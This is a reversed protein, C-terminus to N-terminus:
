NKDSNNQLYFYSILSNMSDEYYTRFKNAFSSCANKNFSLVKTVIGSSNPLPTEDKYSYLYDTLGAKKLILYTKSSEKKYTYNKKWFSKDYTGYEDFSFFPVTNHLAVVIPHMREGIYGTANKILVYWELPNLPLPIKYKMGFDFCGEPMPFAVAQIGRKSIEEEIEKIYNPSIYNPSFSILIYKDNLSYKKKLENFSPLQPYCNQNFSFVPDPTVQIEKRGTIKKVMSQTWEDRVSIYGYNSLADNMRKCETRSMQKYPCNQSSVSFVGAPIHRDLRELFAGFFPNGYLMEVLVCNYVVYRLKRRLFARRYKEPQYKFLADSGAILADLKLSNVEKILEEETRCLRSLPLVKTTLEDHSAIQVQPVRGRAYINELDNPFWHLVIPEHGLRMLFGVTSIAQLQAGFNPVCHYTLIGIRM